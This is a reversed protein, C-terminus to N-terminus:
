GLDISDSNRAPSGELLNETKLCDDIELFSLHMKAAGHNVM